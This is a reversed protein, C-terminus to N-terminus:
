GSIANRVADAKDQWGGWGGVRSDLAQLAADRVDMKWLVLALHMLPIPYGHALRRQEQLFAAMTGFESHEELFPVGVEALASRIEEGVLRGHKGLVTQDAKTMRRKLSDLSRGIFAQLPGNAKTARLTWWSDRGILDDLRVRVVCQPEKVFGSPTNGWIIEEFEKVFVGLNVTFSQKASTNWRSRQVNVVHVIMGQDRNWSLRNKRFGMSKLSPAIMDRGILDIQDM